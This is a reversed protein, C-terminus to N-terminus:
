QRYRSGLALRSQPPYALRHARPLHLRFRIYAPTSLYLNAIMEM